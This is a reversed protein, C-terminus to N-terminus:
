MIKHMIKNNPKIENSFCIRLFVRKEGAELVRGRHLDTSDYQYLQGNDIELYPLNKFETRKNGWVILLYENNSGDTHWNLNKCSKVSKDAYLEQYDFTVYKYQLKKLDIILSISDLFNNMQPRHKLLFKMSSDKIFFHHIENLSDAHNFKTLFTSNRLLDNVDYNNFINNKQIM